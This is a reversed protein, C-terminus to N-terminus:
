NHHRAHSSQNFEVEVGCYQTVRGDNADETRFHHGYAWMYSFLHVQVLLGNSNWEQVESIAHHQGSM